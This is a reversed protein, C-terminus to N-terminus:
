TAAKTADEWERWKGLSPTGKSGMSVYTYKVNKFKKFLEFTSQKEM